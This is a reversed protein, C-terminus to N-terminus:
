IFYLDNDTPWVNCLSTILTLFTTNKDRPLLMYTAYGKKVSFVTFVFKTKAVFEFKRIGIDKNITNVKSIEFM